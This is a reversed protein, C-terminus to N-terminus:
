IIYIAGSSMNNDNYIGNKMKSIVYLKFKIKLEFSTM